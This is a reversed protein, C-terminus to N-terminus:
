ARHLEALQRAALRAPEGGRLHGFEALRYSLRPPVPGLLGSRARLNIPRKPRKASARALVQLRSPHRGQRFRQPPRSEARSRAPPDGGTPASYWAAWERAKKRRRWSLPRRKARSPSRARNREARRPSKPGTAGCALSRVRRGTSRGRPNCSRRPRITRPCNTPGSRPEYLNAETLV